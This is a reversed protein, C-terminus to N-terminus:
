FRQTSRRGRLFTHGYRPSEATICQKLIVCKRTDTFGGATIRYLYIGPSVDNSEWVVSYYGPQQEDDVLTEVLQGKINYIKLSVKCPKPLSYSITTQPSRGKGYFASFPNPYNQSLAFVNPVQPANDEVGVTIVNMTVPITVLPDASNNHILINATYTPQPSPDHTDFHVTDVFTEGPAVTGSIATVDIWWTASRTDVLYIMEDGQHTIWLYVPYREDFSSGSCSYSGGSGPTPFAFNIDGTYPDITYVNGGSWGNLYIIDLYPNYSIGYPVLDPAQWSNIMNGLSDCEYIFASSPDFGNDDTVWLHDGVWEVGMLGDICPTYIVDVPNYGDSVDIKYVSNEYYCGQYLYGNHWALGTPPMSPSGPDGCATYQAIFNFNSDLKVVYGDWNGQWFYTGDWEFGSPMGVSPHSEIIEGQRLSDSIWDDPPRCLSAPGAVSKVYLAERQGESVVELNFELPGNGNNTIYLLTDLTSDIYLTVDFADPEVAIESHTLLFNVETTEGGLVVIGTTDCDIYGTAAVTMDYIDAPIDPFIYFGSADTTDWYSHSNCATVLAGAITDGTEADTVTGQITGGLGPVYMTIPITIEPTDSNNQIVMDANYFSHTAQTADFHVIVQLSQDPPITGEAPEASIWSPSGPGIEMGFIFDPTGQSLGIFVAKGDQLDFCAGGAFTQNGSGYGEYIVGTFVGNVPDFQRINHLDQTYIWLWPGDPSVNDWALGYIDYENPNPFANIITGSRDIEYIPNEFNAVWFHDTAPDYALARNPSHPGQIQGVVHLEPNDPLGTVLWQTIYSDNSSYMYEGDYAIDRWGWGSVPQDIGGIYNGNADFFYLKCIDGYNAATIYYYTGDFEVGLCQNNGSPASVDYWWLIEGQSRQGGDLKANPAIDNLASSPDSDLVLEIETDSQIIFPTESQQIPHTSGPRGQPIVNKIGSPRGQPIERIGVPNVGNSLIFGVPYISIRFDLPGNGDNTIYLTDDYTTGYELTDCFSTPEIAIDPHTLVFSVDTIEDAFVEVGSVTSDNYGSASATVTYTGVSVNDILYNGSEDTFASQGTTAVTVDAGEIPGGEYKTVTGEIAGQELTEPAIKIVWIDWDGPGFSKTIGAIIYGGDTTQQVTKGCDSELGGYTETWVIYGESNTKILYIDNSGADFSNTTGVIIYGGDTTQEVWAGGDSVEGGYTRTWLTDGFSDTRILWVDSDKSGVAVYGEDEIQQACSVSYPKTWVTNGQSDTKTLHGGAIIYGLDSTQQVSQGAIDSTWIIDGVTNTRVLKSNGIIILGGDQTQKVCQASEFTGGGFDECWDWVFADGLPNTKMLYYDFEGGWGGGAAIYGGDRTQEAWNFFNFEGPVTGSHYAHEWYISGSPYLKALYGLHVYYGAWAVYGGAVIYGGDRTQRVCAYHEFWPDAQSTGFTRTWQTPPPQTLLGVAAGAINSPTSEGVPSGSDYATVYFAYYEGYTLGQVTYTEVGPNVSTIFTGDAYYVNIGALDELPTGDVNETPDVWTLEISNPTTEDSYATLDSPPMPIVNGYALAGATDSPVSNNVPTENDFATTYFSYYFGPDLGTVTYTEVGPDVSTIFSSDAFYVNIGALDDLHTGDDQTTPDNWTLMISAQMTSDSYAVLSDPPSPVPSGGAFWSITETPNSAASDDRVAILYYSYLQGDTLGDNTYTEVGPNVSTIFTSDSYYVDIHNLDTLPSGNINETPDTWNLQIAQPTTYDSYATLDSPPMPYDIDTIVRISDMYIDYIRQSHGNQNHGGFILNVTQGAWPTLDVIHEQWPHYCGWGHNFLMTYVGELEVFVYGGYHYYGTPCSTEMWFSLLHHGYPLSIEQSIVEWQDNPTSSGSAHGEGIYIHACWSDHHQIVDAYFPGSVNWGTFDGTEFDGNFVVGGGSTSSAINSKASENIPTEDDYATVYFSYYVWQVLESVTYTELGPNVSAIFTSDAFYINIGALDDLPTGDDQTTPDNWTLRISNWMTTDSYAELSDPPSPVPSGGAHWTVTDSPNYMNGNNAVAMLYYGYLQGDVLGDDTYIEVGPNVSAIFTGDSYYVDIRNLDTLPSGNINETPDTWTLQISNPTTYDSYASFDSPPMPAIVMAGAINSPASEGVPTESDYATVYFNYQEGCTLGQVAYTEVGPAVSTIFTSDAYYVNIGALDELPTGDANETPDVWTLRISNHLVTDSYASFDSPPMPPANGGLFAMVTSTIEDMTGSSDYYYVNGFSLSSETTLAQFVIDAILGEGEPAQTPDTGVLTYAISLVGPISTDVTWGIAEGGNTTLINPEYTIPNTATAAIYQLRTTDYLVEFEYTDLNVVDQAYVDLRIYDGVGPEPIYLLNQNGYTTADLDFTIGANENPGAFILSSFFLSLGSVLIIAKSLIREKKGSIDPSVSRKLM